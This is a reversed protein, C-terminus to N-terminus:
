VLGIISDHKKTREKLTNSLISFDVGKYAGREWVFFKGQHAEFAEDTTGGELRHSSM